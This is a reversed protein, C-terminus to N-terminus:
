LILNCFYLKKEMLWGLILKNIYFRNLSKSIFLIISRLGPFFAPRSHGKRPSANVDAVRAVKASAHKSTTAKLQTPLRRMRMSAQAMFAQNANPESTLLSKERVCLESLVKTKGSLASPQSLAHRCVIAPELMQM